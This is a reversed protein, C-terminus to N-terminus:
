ELVKLIGAKIEFIDGNKILNNIIKETEELGSKNIIDEIPVGNGTDLEKILNYIDTSNQAHEQQPFETLGTNQNKINNDNRKKLIELELKRVLIWKPETVKKIIDSIIYNENNFERPRGIVMIIDGVNLYNVQSNKEYSRTFIRGTGDDIILTEYEFRDISKFVITGIINVRYIKNGYATEIYNPNLGDNKIYKSNILDSISIKAAILRKQPKQNHEQM